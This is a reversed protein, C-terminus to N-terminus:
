LARIIYKMTISNPQVTDSNGYIPNSKSADIDMWSFGYRYDSDTHIGAKSANNSLEFAGEATASDALFPYTRSGSATIRGTINPLGAAKYLGVQDTYGEIFRGTLNPLKFTTVGDGKGYTEGIVTFLKSYQAREIEDGNYLLFYSSITGTGAFPLVTGIPVILNLLDYIAADNYITKEKEKVRFKLRSSEKDM